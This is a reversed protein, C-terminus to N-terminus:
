TEGRGKFPPALRAQHTYKLAGAALIDRQALTLAMWERRILRSLPGTSILSQKMGFRAPAPNSKVDFMAIGSRGPIHRACGHSPVTVFAGERNLLTKCSLCASLSGYGASRVHRLDVGVREACLLQLFFKGSGPPDDYRHRRLRDPIVQFSIVAALVFLGRSGPDVRRAFEQRFHGLLIGLV